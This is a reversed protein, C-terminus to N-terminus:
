TLFRASGQTSLSSGVVLRSQMTNLRLNCCNRRSEKTKMMIARTREMEWRQWILIRRSKSRLLFFTLTNFLSLWCSVEADKKKHRTNTEADAYYLQETSIEANCM